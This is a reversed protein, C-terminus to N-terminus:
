TRICFIATHRIYKGYGSKNLIDKAAWYIESCKIGPKLMEFGRERSVLKCGPPIISSVNVINFKQIGASRLALEFSRLYEKHKGVGKALFFYKPIM